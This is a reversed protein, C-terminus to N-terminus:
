ITNQYTWQDWYRKFLSILVNHANLRNECFIMKIKPYKFQMEFTRRMIIATNVKLKPWVYEPIGSNVPFSQIHGIGFEFLLFPFEFENLRQLEREFRAQNINTAWEGLSAKRDVTFKDEHGVLSYDGTHLKTRIFGECRDTAEFFHPQRERTDVIVQYKSETNM